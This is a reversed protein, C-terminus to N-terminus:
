SLLLSKPAKAIGGVVGTVSGGGGRPSGGGTAAAAPNGRCTIITSLLNLHASIWALSRSGRLHGACIFDSQGGVVATTVGATQKRKWVV